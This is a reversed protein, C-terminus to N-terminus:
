AKERLRRGIGCARRVRNQIGRSLIGRKGVLVAGTKARTIATYFIEQTLIEVDQEPLILAISRYESGQSRHVSVAYALSISGRLAEAPYAVYVGGRRFVAMLRLIGKRPSVRLVIGHDGNFLNKTYDNREILVPEGPAFEAPRDFGERELAKIHFLRNVAETGTTYVNTACLMRFGEFHDFLRDLDQLDQGRFGERGYYYRKSILKQFDSLGLVMSSYWRSCFDSLVNESGSTDLFEAGAFVCDEASSRNLVLPLAPNWIENVAGRRIADSLLYIKGGEPDDERMRFNKTLRVIGIAFGTPSDKEFQMLEGLVAGADVSPLQDADGLLILLADDPLASMLREMLYLDIMSAEDVIVVRGPLRNSENQIFLDRGPSYRLLRHITTAEPMGAPGAGSAEAQMGTLLSGTLRNAAKGTPATLIVDHLGVGLRMLVKLISVVISTKGTGPGGSIISVPRTLGVTVAHKQEDTLRLPQGDTEKLFFAVKERPFVGTSRQSLMRLRGCFSLELQLMRQLYVGGGDVILPKFEGATGIVASARGDETMKGLAHLLARHEEAMDADGNSLLALASDALNAADGALPLLTSGQRVAILTCIALLTLAKKDEPVLSSAFSAIEAALQITEEKMTFGKMGNRLREIFQEFDARNPDIGKLGEFALRAAGCASLRQLHIM